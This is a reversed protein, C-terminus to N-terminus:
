KLLGLAGRYFGGLNRPWTTLVRYSAGDSEVVNDDQLEHRSWILWRAETRIGEPLDKLEEGKVPQVSAQIVTETEAGPVFDGTSQDYAGDARVKLTMPRSLMDVAIGLDLM